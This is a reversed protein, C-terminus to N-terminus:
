TTRYIPAISAAKGCQSLEYPISEGHEESSLMEAM